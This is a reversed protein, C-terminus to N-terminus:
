VILSTHGFVYSSLGEIHRQQTVLNQYHRQLNYHETIPTTLPKNTTNATSNESLPINFFIYSSTNINYKCLTHPVHKISMLKEDMCLKDIHRKIYIYQTHTDKKNHQIRGEKM